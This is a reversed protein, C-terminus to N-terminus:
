RPECRLLLPHSADIRVAVSAVAADGAFAAPDLARGLRERVRRPEPFDLRSAVADGRSAGEGDVRVGIWWEATGEARRYWRM